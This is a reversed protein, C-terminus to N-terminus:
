NKPRDIRPRNIRPRNIVPESIVATRDYYVIVFYHLGNERCIPFWWNLVYIGFKEANLQNGVGIGTIDRVRFWMKDSAYRKIECMQVVWDKAVLFDWYNFDTVIWKRALKKRELWFVLRVSIHIKHSDIKLLWLTVAVMGRWM